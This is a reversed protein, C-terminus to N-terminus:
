WCSGYFLVHALIVPATLFYLTNSFKPNKLVVGLDIKYILYNIEGLYKFNRCMLLIKFSLHIVTLELTSLGSLIKWTFM